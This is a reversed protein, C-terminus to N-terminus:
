VNPRAQVAGMTLRGLSDLPTVHRCAVSQPVTTAQFAGRRPLAEQFAIFRHPVRPAAATPTSPAAAPAQATSPEAVPVSTSTPRVRTAPELTAPATAPEAPAQGTQAGVLPPRSVAGLHLSPTQRVPQNVWDLWASVGVRAAVGVGLSLGIIFAILPLKRM